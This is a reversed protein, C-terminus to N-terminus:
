LSLCSDACARICREVVKREQTHTHTHTHTCIHTCTHTGCVYHATGPLHVETMDLGYKEHALNRMEAYIRWDHLAVTNLNYFISDLYHTVRARIDILTDFFNLPRLNLFKSLDKMRGGATSGAGVAASSRLSAQQLVVSHIHLRLDTEVERCLPNLIHTTFHSLIEGRYELLL